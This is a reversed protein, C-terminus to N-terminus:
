TIRRLLPSAPDSRRPVVNDWQKPRLISRILFSLSLSPADAKTAAKKRFLAVILFYSAYATPSCHLLSRVQASRTPHRWTDIPGDFQDVILLLFVYSAAQFPRWVISIREVVLWFCGPPFPSPYSLICSRRLACPPTCHSRKPHL